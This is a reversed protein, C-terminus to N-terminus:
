FANDIHQEIIKLIEAEDANSLGLFPRAPIDGWLHPFEAKTGGFQQMAAYEMPSGLILTHDSANFNISDMLEGSKGSLPKKNDWRKEGKKSLLKGDKSKTGGVSHVYNSITANSNDEWKEGDPGTTTEFRHQTSEKLAHGIVKFAPTLNGAAAQLNRLANQVQAFDLKIEVLDAM